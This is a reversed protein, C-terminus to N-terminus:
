GCFNTNHKGFIHTNSQHKADLPQTKRTFMNNQTKHIGINQLIKRGFIANKDRLFTCIEDFIKGCIRFKARKKAV